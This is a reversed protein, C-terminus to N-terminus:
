TLCGFTLVSYHGRFRATEVQQGHVDYVVVDPFVDGVAPRQKVFAAEDRQRDQALALNATASVLLVFELVALAKM